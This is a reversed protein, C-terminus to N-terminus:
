VILTDNHLRFLVHLVFAKRVHKNFGTLESTLEYNGPLLLNAEYYGTENTKFALTVGTDANRVVLVAGAVAGGQPDLVRASLMSRTEQSHASFSLLLAFCCAVSIHRQMWYIRKM